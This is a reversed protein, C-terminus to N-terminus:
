RSGHTGFLQTSILGPQRGISDFEGGVGILRSEPIIILFRDIKRTVTDVRQGISRDVVDTIMGALREEQKQGKEFRMMLVTPVIVRRRCDISITIVAGPQRRVEGTQAAGCVLLDAAVVPHDFSQVLRVAPDQVRQAAEAEVVVRHDCETGIMATMELGAVGFVLARHM